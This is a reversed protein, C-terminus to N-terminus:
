SSPGGALECIPPWSSWRTVARASSGISANEIAGRLGGFAPTSLFAGDKASDLLAQVEARLVADPCAGALWAFREAEPRDLAAHFLDRISDWQSSDM